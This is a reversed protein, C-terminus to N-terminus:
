SIENLYTCVSGKVDYYIINEYFSRDFCCIWKMLRFSDHGIKKIGTAAESWYDQEFNPSLLM